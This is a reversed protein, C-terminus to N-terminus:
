DLTNEAVVPKRSVFVPRSLRERIVDSLDIDRRFAERSMDDHLDAPLRVSVTGDFERPRGRKRQSESV